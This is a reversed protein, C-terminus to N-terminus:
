NGLGRGHLQLMGTESGTQDSPNDSLLVVDDGYMSVHMRVELAHGSCAVGNFRVKALATRLTGGRASSAVPPVHVTAISNFIIDDVIHLLASQVQVNRHLRLM